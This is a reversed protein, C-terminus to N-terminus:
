IMGCQWVALAMTGCQWPPVIGCGHQRKVCIEVNVAGFFRLADLLIHVEDNKGETILQDAVRAVATVGRLLNDQVAQWGADRSRSASPLQDWVLDDVRPADLDSANDPTGYEKAKEKLMKMAEESPRKRMCKTLFDAMSTSVAPAGSDELKLEKTIESWLEVPTPESDDSCALNEEATEQEAEDYTEETQCMNSKLFTCLKDFNNELKSFRAEWANNEDSDNHSEKTQKPGSDAVIGEENKRKLSQISSSAVGAGESSSKEVAAGHNSTKKPPM